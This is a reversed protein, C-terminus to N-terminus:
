QGRLAQECYPLIWEFVKKNGESDVGNASLTRDVTHGKIIHSATEVIVGSTFKFWNPLETNEGVVHVAPIKKYNLYQDIQILAGYYRNRHVDPNHMYKHYLILAQIWEDRNEFKQEIMLDEELHDENFTPRNLIKKTIDLEIKKELEDKRITSIDRHWSPVYIYKPRSHFILALDLKKTKKINDLIREESAMAQGVHVLKANYYDRLRSTFSFDDEPKWATISAGYIGLNM